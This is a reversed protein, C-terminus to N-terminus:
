EGDGMFVPKLLLKVKIRVLAFKYVTPFFNIYTCLYIESRIYIEKRGYIFEVAYTYGKGPSLLNCKTLHLFESNYVYKM